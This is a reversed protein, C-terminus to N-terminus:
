RGRWEPTRECRPDLSPQVRASPPKVNNCRHVAEESPEGQGWTLSQVTAGLNIIAIMPEGACTLEYATVLSGDPM